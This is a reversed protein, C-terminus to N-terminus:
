RKSPNVNGGDKQTLAMLTTNLVATSNSSTIQYQLMSLPRIRKVKQPGAALEQLKLDKQPEGLPSPGAHRVRYTYHGVFFGLNEASKSVLAGESFAKETLFSFFVPVVEHKYVLCSTTGTNKLKTVLFAENRKLV